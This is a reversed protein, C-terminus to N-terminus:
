DGIAGYIQFCLHRCATSAEELKSIDTYLNKLVSKLSVGFIKQSDVWLLLLKWANGRCNWEM